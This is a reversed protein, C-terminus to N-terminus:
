CCVKESGEGRMSLKGNLSFRNRGNLLEVKCFKEKGHAKWIFSLSVAEVMKRM